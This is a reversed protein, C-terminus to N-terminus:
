PTPSAERRKLQVWVEPPGRVLQSIVATTVVRVERGTTHLRNAAILESVLPLDDERSVIEVLGTDPVALARHREFADIERVLTRGDPSYIYAREGGIATPAPQAFLGLPLLWIEVSDGDSRMSVPAFARKEQQFSPFGRIVAETTARIQALIASTDVPGPYRVSGAIDVVRVNAAKRYASDPTFYAALMRGNRRLCLGTRGVSDVPGLVGSERLYSAKAACEVTSLLTRSTRDLRDFALARTSDAALSQTQAQLM